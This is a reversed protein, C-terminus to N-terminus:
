IEEPIFITREDLADRIDIYSSKNYTILQYERVVNIVDDTSVLIIRRGKPNEIIKAM